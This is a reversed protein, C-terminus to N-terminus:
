HRRRCRRPRGGRGGDGAKPRGASRSTRCVSWGRSSGGGSTSVGRRGHRRHSRPTFLRDCWRSFRPARCSPSGGGGDTPVAAARGGCGGGGRGGIGPRASPLALSGGRVGLSGDGGRTQAAFFRALGAACQGFTLPTSGSAGHVLPRLWSSVGRSLRPECFREDALLLAGWDGRHRLARGLAQNAARSAQAGYWEAGSQLSPTDAVGRNGGRAREETAARYDSDLMERRAKVRPDTASAYPPGAVIVLRAHHDAFDLGEAARGRCVALLVAGDFAADDCRARFAELLPPFASADTPEVFPRKRRSILDWVTQAGGAGAGAGPDRRRWAREATELAARSPFFVLVGGPAVRCAHAVAGGLARAWVGSCRGDWDGRLPLGSPGRPLVGAWVRDAPVVHGGEHRVPFRM